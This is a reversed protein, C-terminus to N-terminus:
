IGSTTPNKEPIYPFGGYRALNNFKGGCHNRTRDCGPYAEYNTGSATQFRNMIHIDNGVHKTIYAQEFGIQIYGRTFYQDPFTGFTAHSLVRLSSDFTMEDVPILVKYDNKNVECGKRYLSRECGRTFRRAPIEAAMLRSYSMLSVVAKYGFIKFQVKTVKGVFAEVPQSATSSITLWLNAPPNDTLFYKIPGLDTPTDLSLENEELDSRWRNRSIARPLYEYGGENIVRKSNNYRWSYTITGSEDRTYFHFLEAAM